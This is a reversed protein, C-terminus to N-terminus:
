GPDQAQRAIHYTISEEIGLTGLSGAVTPWLVAAALAGRNHLGLGRALEIGSVANLVQLLVSTRLM